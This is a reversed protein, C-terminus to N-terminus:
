YCLQFSVDTTHPVFWTPILSLSNPTRIFSECVQVCYPNGWRNTAAKPLNVEPTETSHSQESCHSNDSRKSFCSEPCCFRSLLVTSGHLHCCHPLHSPLAWLAWLHSGPSDAGSRCCSGEALMQQCAQLIISEGLWPQTAWPPETCSNPWKHSPSSLLEAPVQKRQETTTTVQTLDSLRCTSDQKARASWLWGKHPTCSSKMTKTCFPKCRM